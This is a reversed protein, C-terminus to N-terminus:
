STNADLFMGWIFALQTENTEEAFIRKSCLCFIEFRVQRYQTFKVDAIQPVRGAARVLRARPVQMSSIREWQGRWVAKPIRSSGLPYRDMLCQHLFKMQSPGLASRITKRGPMSFGPFNGGQARFALVLSPVHSHQQIDEFDVLIDVDPIKFWALTVLVQSMFAEAKDKVVPLQGLLSTEKLYLKNNIIKFKVYSREDRYLSDDIQEKTINGEWYYDAWVEGDIDVGGPNFDYQSTYPEELANALDWCSRTGENLRMARLRRNGHCTAAFYIALILAGIIWTEKRVGRTTWFCRARATGVQLNLMSFVPPFRAQFIKRLIVHM